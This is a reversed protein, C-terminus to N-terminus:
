SRDGNLESFEIEKQVAEFVGQKLPPRWHSFKSSLTEGQVPDPTVRWLCAVTLVAGKLPLMM